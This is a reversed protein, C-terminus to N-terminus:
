KECGPLILKTMYWKCYVTAMHATLQKMKINAPFTYDQVDFNSQKKKKTLKRQRGDLSRDL